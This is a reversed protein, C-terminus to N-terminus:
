NGKKKSDVPEEIFKSYISIINSTIKEEEDMEKLIKKIEEEILEGLEFDASYNTDNWKISGDTFTVGCKKIEPDTLNLKKVLEDVRKMVIFHGEKPLIGILAFREAITLKVIM